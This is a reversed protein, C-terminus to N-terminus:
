MLLCAQATSMVHGHCTRSLVCLHRCHSMHLDSLHSAALTKSPGFTHARRVKFVTPAVTLDIEQEFAIYTQVGQRWGRSAQVIPMRDISSPMVILLDDRDAISAGHPAAADLQPASKITISHVSGANASGTSIMPQQAASKGAQAHHRKGLSDRDFVASSQKTPAGELQNSSRTKSLLDADPAANSAPLSHQAKSSSVTTQNSSSHLPKAYASSSSSKNPSDVSYSHDGGTTDTSDLAARHTLAETDQSM